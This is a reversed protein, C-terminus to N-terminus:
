NKWVIISTCKLQSSLNSKLYHILIRNLLMRGSRLYLKCFEFNHIDKRNAFHWIRDIDILKGLAMSSPM